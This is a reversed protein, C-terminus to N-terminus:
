AHDDRGPRDRVSCCLRCFLVELLFPDANFEDISLLWPATGEGTSGQSPSVQLHYPSMWEDASVIATAKIADGESRCQLDDVELDITYGM